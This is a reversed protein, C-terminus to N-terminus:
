FDLPQQSTQAADLAAELPTTSSPDINNAFRMEASVERNKIEEPTLFESVKFVYPRGNGNVDWRVIEKAQGMESKEHWKPYRYRTVLEKRKVQAQTEANWNERGIVSIVEDLTNYKGEKYEYHHYKESKMNEQLIKHLYTQEYKKGFWESMMDQPTMKIEDVGFDLFMDRLRSRIDKELAPASHQIVKKLAETKLLEPDFWARHREPLKLKRTQLYHLFAPIEEQMEALININLKSAVPVKRIWYRVDDESAYIFNEENNTLFIFKGFFDIEVHDKGKRNMLIKDATSLNKVREVVVQKDIKTEDCIILLKTAYSANFDNSLEANGVIAVNATFILKLWKALTTKGTGQERSVLCLIPLIQTPKTYLLQLYDLGLDMENVEVKEKTEPDKWTIMSTGFVHRLYSLTVECEGEEPTHEIPNYVNFCNYIVPQYNTHDPVNCFAKYKPIHQMIGKGHDEVITSRQRSHFVKELQHYKNPISVYEHYVDGVRFYDKANGPVIVQCENKEENYRYQTGNWMFDVGKLTKYKEVHHHYFSNVDHLNLYKRVENVSYSINIRHFFESPGKKSFNILDSAIQERQDHFALLLDDLGKPNGELQDSLPHVFWKGVEELQSTYQAIAAASAFFSYPRKYLDIAKETETTGFKASLNNCDGDVLWIIHEVQCKKIVQLIEEHLGNSHADRSHTISGLGIVDIGVLSGAMAKFAGETMTLVKIKTGRQFKTIISPPLFPLSGYGKPFNYKKDGTPSKLRTVKYDKSWRGDKAKYQMKLGSLSPYNIDINGFQDETFIEFTKEEFGEQGRMFRGYEYNRMTYQDASTIGMQALRQKFYSIEVQESM